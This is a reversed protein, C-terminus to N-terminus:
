CWTFTTTDLVTEVSISIISTREENPEKKKHAKGSMKVADNFSDEGACLDDNTSNNCWEVPIWVTSQFIGNCNSANQMKVPRVVRRHLLFEVAGLEHMVNTILKKWEAENERSKKQRKNVQVGSSREDHLKWVKAQIIRVTGYDNIACKMWTKGGKRKSCKKNRKLKREFQPPSAAYFFQWLFFSRHFFNWDEEAFQKWDSIFFLPRPFSISPFLVPSDFKFWLHFKMLSKYSIRTSIRNACRDFKTVHQSFHSQNSEM